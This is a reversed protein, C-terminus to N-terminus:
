GEDAADSTYLLCNQSPIYGRKITIDCDLPLPLEGTIYKVYQSPTYDKNQYKWSSLEYDVFVINGQMEYFPTGNKTHTGMGHSLFPLLWHLLGARFNLQELCFLAEPQGIESHMFDRGNM